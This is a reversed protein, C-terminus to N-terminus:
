SAVETWAALRDAVLRDIDPRVAGPLRALTPELFGGVILRVAADPALGRSELYFRQAPDVPAVTAGHSCSVDENLIELEPISDVRARDSLLLNRNEQFASSGRAEEAIRILGTYSARARGAAVTRYDIDSTTRPAEHRHRTHLDLHRDDGDALAVGIMRSDAGPGALEATIEQKARGGGLAAFATLLGADRAVRAHRHLYGTVGDGWRQLILHRVAAGAAVALRGVGLVHGTDGRHDELLTVEAGAGVTVVLRPLLLPAAPVVVRLPLALRTGAPIDLRAGANWAAANLLPFFGDDGGPVPDDGGLPGATVGADRAAPSLRVLPGTGPRLVVTGAYDTAVPEDGPEEGAGGALATEWDAPLLVAPDTFRWLHDARHPPEGAALDALATRRVAADGGTRAALAALVEAAPLTLALTQEAM